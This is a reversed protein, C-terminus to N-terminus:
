VAEKPPYQNEKHRPVHKLVEEWLDVAVSWTFIDWEVVDNIFESNNIM